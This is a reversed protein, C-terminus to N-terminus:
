RLGGSFHTESIALIEALAKENGGPVEGQASAGLVSPESAASRNNMQWEVVHTHHEM